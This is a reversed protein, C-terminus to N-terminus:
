RGKSKGRARVRPVSGRPPEAVVSEMDVTVSIDELRAPEPGLLIQCRGQSLTLSNPTYACAGSPKNQRSEDNTSSKDTRLGGSTMPLWAVSTVHEPDRYLGTTVASQIERVATAVECATTLASSSLVPDSIQSIAVIQRRLEYCLPLVHPGVDVYRTSLLLTLSDTALLHRNHPHRALDRLALVNGTLETQLASLKRAAEQARASSLMVHESALYDSVPNDSREPDNEIAGFTRALDSRLKAVAAPSLGYVISWYGRLDSPIGDADQSIIITRRSLAHRVGLEYFVNANRDTVDALVIYSRRLKDVISGILNGSSPMARECQYGCSEVSPKIVYQFIEDWEATTRSATQSVPMVVFVEHNM